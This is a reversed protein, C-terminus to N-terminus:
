FNNIVLADWLFQCWQLKNKFKNLDNIISEQTKTLQLQLKM